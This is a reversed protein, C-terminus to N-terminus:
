PINAGALAPEPASLHFLRRLAATMQEQEVKEPLEKLERALLGVIKQTTRYAALRLIEDQDKTFPGCEEKFCELEQRCVEDLRERLAIITSMVHEAILTRRFGHAEAEVIKQAEAAAAEHERSNQKVMGELDDFDYLLMGPVQRVAPDIDRPMAIDVLVLPRQNRDRSVLEADARTMITHCCSTSSIVADARALHRWRDDFAVAVGGLQSALESSRQYNRDMVYVSAGQNLLRQAALEGMKGASFLLVKKNDLTGMVHRALEAAAYPVSVTAHDIATETRVRESVSMAKQLVSDLFNATCGVQQAQQWASKLQAVIEPEGIVISDLGSAVRFLHLLAADDLLRYFHKWECLKLRYHASLFRLVSNAALSPDDAWVLFETRNCTALVIVEEIGEAKALESLAVVRAAEGIWFRERVAVPASRHNLGIVM